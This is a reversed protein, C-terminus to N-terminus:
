RARYSRKYRCRPYNSCGYFKGYPGDRVVLNGGCRPCVLSKEKQKREYAYYQVQHVHEKKAKKDQINVENLIGAINKVQEISLNPIGKKDM